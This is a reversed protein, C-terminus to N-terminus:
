SKARDRGTSAARIIEDEYYRILREKSALRDLLKNRELCLQTIRKLRRQNHWARWFADQDKSAEVMRRFWAIM